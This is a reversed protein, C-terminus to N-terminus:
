HESQFYDSNGLPLSGAQLKRRPSRPHVGPKRYASARTERDATGQFTADGESGDLSNNLFSAKWWADHTAEKVTWNGGGTPKREESSVPEKQQKRGSIPKKSFSSRRQTPLSGNLRVATSGRGSTPYDYSRSSDAAARDSHNSPPRPIATEHVHLLRTNIVECDIQMMSRYHEPARMSENMPQSPLLLSMRPRQTQNHSLAPLMIHDGNFSVVYFTDDRRHIAEM